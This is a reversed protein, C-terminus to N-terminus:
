WGAHPPVEDEDDADAGGEVASRQVDAPQLLAEPRAAAAAAGPSEERASWGAAAAAPPESAAAGAGATASAPVQVPPM